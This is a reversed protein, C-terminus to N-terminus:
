NTQALAFSRILSLGEFEKEAANVGDLERQFQIIEDNAREEDKKTKKENNYATEMKKKLHRIKEEAEVIGPRQHRSSTPWLYCYPLDSYYM